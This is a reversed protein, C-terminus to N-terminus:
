AGTKLAARAYEAAWDEYSGSSITSLAKELRTVRERLGDREAILAPRSNLSVVIKDGDAPYDCRAILRGVADYVKAPAGEARVPLKIAGM